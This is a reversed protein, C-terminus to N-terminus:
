LAAVLRRSLTTVASPVQRSLPRPAQPTKAGQREPSPLSMSSWNIESGGMVGVIHERLNEAALKGAVLDILVLMHQREEVDHGARGPVRQHNRLDRGAVDEIDPHVVVQM